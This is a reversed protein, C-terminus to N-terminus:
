GVINLDRANRRLGITELYHTVERLVDEQTDLIVDCGGHTNHVRVGLQNGYDEDISRILQLM